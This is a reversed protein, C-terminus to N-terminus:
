DKSWQQKEMLTELAMQVREDPECRLSLYLSSSDVMDGNALLGTDYRWIQVQVAGLEPVPIQELKETQRKWTDRGVALVEEKPAALLSNGALATEGARYVGDSPLAQKWVRVTERVPSRLLSQAQAWLAVTGAPFDLLREKGERVVRGLKHGGMEDLARSMTM